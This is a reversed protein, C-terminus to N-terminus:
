TRPPKLTTDIVRVSTDIAAVKDTAKDFSSHPLKLCFQAHFPSEKIGSDVLKGNVTCSVYMFSLDDTRDNLATSVSVKSINDSGKPFTTGILNTVSLANAMISDRIATAEVFVTTTYIPLETSVVSSLDSVSVGDRHNRLILSLSDFYASKKWTPETLLAITLISVPVNDQGLFITKFGSPTTATTDNTTNRLLSILAITKLNSMMTTMSNPIPVM